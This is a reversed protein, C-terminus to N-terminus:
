FTVLLKYLKSYVNEKTAKLCINQALLTKDKENKFNKYVHELANSIDDIDVDYKYANFEGFCTYNAKTLKNSILGTASGCDCFCKLATNNSFICPIERYMAERATISFGEGRSPLVFCDLSNLFDCYESRELHETILEINNSNNINHIKDWLIPNFKRNGSIKIKLKINQNNKFKKNFAIIVKDINKDELLGAVMGFTFVSNVKEHKKLGSYDVVLDLVFIPIKVGNKKYVEVLWQDPVIVFNFKNNLISVWYDPITSCELMSVAVNISDPTIIQDTFDIINNNNDKAALLYTFMKIKAPSKKSVININSTNLNKDFNELSYYGINLNHNKHDFCTLYNLGIGAIGKDYNGGGIIVLDYVDKKNTIRKFLDYLNKKIEEKRWKKTKFKNEKLNKFYYDYNNIIKHMSDKIDELTTDFKEGKFDNFHKYNSLCKIDSNIALALDEDCLEKHASNYSLICPINMNMAQRPILSFGEGKSALVFCDFSLMLNTFEKKDLTGWLLKINNIHKTIDTIKKYLIPDTKPEGSIKLILEYNKDNGFEEAFAQAVKHLNKDEGFGGICGFRFRDKKLNIKQNKSEEVILPIVIIPKTVGSKLYTEEVWKCPVIIYDFINNLKNVWVEPIPACELMSVAIKIDSNKILNLKSNIKGKDNITAILDTYIAIDYKSYKNKISKNLDAKTKEDLDDLEIKTTLTFDVDFNDNLIKFLNIGISHIGKSSLGGGIIQIKLKANIFIFCISVAIIKRM